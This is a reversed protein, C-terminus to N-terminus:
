IDCCPRFTGVLEGSRESTGHVLTISCLLSDLKVLMIDFSHM